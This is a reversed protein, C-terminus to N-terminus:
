PPVPGDPEAVSRYNGCTECAYPHTTPMRVSSQCDTPPHKLRKRLPWSPAGLSDGLRFRSQAGKMLGELIVEEKELTASLDILKLRSQQLVDDMKKQQEPTIGISRVMEPNDWWKGGPGSHGRGPAPQGSGLTAVALFLVLTAGRDGITKM